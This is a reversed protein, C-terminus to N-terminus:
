HILEDDLIDDANWRKDTLNYGLALCLVYFDYLITLIKAESNQAPTYYVTEILFHEYDNGIVLILVYLLYSVASALFTFLIFLLPEENEGGKIAWMVTLFLTISVGILVILAVIGRIPPLSFPDLLIFLLAIPLVAGITVNKLSKFIINSM